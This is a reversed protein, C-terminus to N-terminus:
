LLQEKPTKRSEVALTQDHFDPGVRTGPTYDQQKTALKTQFPLFLMKHTHTLLHTPVSSTSWNNHILKTVKWRCGGGRSSWWWRGFLDWDELCVNRWGEKRRERSRGPTPLDPWLKSPLWLWGGGESDASQRATETSALTPCCMTRLVETHRPSPPHSNSWNVFPQWHLPHHTATTNM